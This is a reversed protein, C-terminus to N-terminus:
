GIVTEPVPVFPCGGYNVYAKTVGQFDLCTTFQKDCGQYLQFADGVQLPFIPPVALDIIDNSSGPTWLRVMCSLGSNNGSTWVLRGLTYTGATSIPAIHATTLFENSLTSAGVVGTAMFSSKNMTCIPDFLTNACSPQILRKPIQINLLYLADQVKITVKTYGLGEIGSVFGFFDLGVYSQGGSSTVQGRTPMYATYIYCPAMGLLAYKVGDLMKVQTAGGPFYVPVQSDAFLTLSSTNSDLGIKSTIEGRAWNGYASPQYVNGGYTIPDGGDTAYIYSGNLLPGIKFLSARFMSLKSQLLAILDASYNKM